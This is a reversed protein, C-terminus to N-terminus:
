GRAMEWSYVARFLRPLDTGGTFLANGSILLHDYQDPAAGDIEFLLTGATQTYDGTISLTGTADGPTVMGEANIVNGVISGGPGNLVGGSNVVVSTAILQGGNQVNLTGQGGTGGIAVTGTGGPQNASWASGTGTVTVTGVAGATTGIAGDQSLVQGGDSITLTGTGDGV